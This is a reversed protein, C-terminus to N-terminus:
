DIKITQSLPLSASSGGAKIEFYGPEVKWGDSEEDWFALSRKDLTVVVTREEGPGLTVKEFAKLEKLPREVSSEPDCVYVQVVEAGATPGTNALTVSVKVTGNRRYDNDCKIAKYAFTTYSLGYGFPFVVPKQTKDYWRYGVFVGEGYPLPVAQGPSVYESFGRDPRSKDGLWWAKYGNNGKWYPKGGLLNYDPAPSDAFDREVTFPLKGSPNVRGGVIDALANGREQGLFYCWLVAKAEPLWDMPFTNCANILVIVNGNLRCAERLRKIQDAPQEFPTDTGEGSPKNLLFLVADAARIQGDDPNELCSFNDGYLSKLGQAYSVHGYGAVFGSGKGSHIEEPGMMLIKTSAPLPLIGGENRLLVVAEAACRRAVERHRGPDSQSDYGCPNRDYVGMRFLTYVTPYIMQESLREVEGQKGAAVQARVWEMLANNDPMMLTMGSPMVLRQLSPHYCSNQWDTMAIGTFGYEARVLDAILPKHMSCPVGNVMNNGSMMAGCDTTTFIREWPLLYIERLTRRDAVSNAVHRCFETDNAVFHKPTAIVDGEQLGQVYASAMVATLLPDEGMYEFNRGGTSLRQINVGPGLLIDVGMARCERAMCGGFEGALARNWTSALPLMGPFSTTEGQLPATQTRVGQSADAMFVPRLGLRAVGGIGFKYGGGTFALKEEFTLRGILDRARNEPSQSEDAYIAGKVANPNDRLPKLQAVDVRAQQAFLTMACASIISTVSLSKMERPKRRHLNIFNVSM